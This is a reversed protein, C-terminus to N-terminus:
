EQGSFLLAVEHCSRRTACRNAEPETPRLRPTALPQVVAENGSIIPHDIGIWVFPLGIVADVNANDSDQSPLGVKRPVGDRLGAFSHCEGNRTTLRGCSIDPLQVHLRPRPSNPVRRDRDRVCGETVPRGKM